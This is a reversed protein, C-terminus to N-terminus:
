MFVVRQIWQHDAVLVQRQMSPYRASFVAGRRLSTAHEGVGIRSISRRM